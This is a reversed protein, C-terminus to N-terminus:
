NMIIVSTKGPKNPPDELGWLTILFIEAAERAPPASSSLPLPSILTNSHLYILRFLETMKARSELVTSESQQLYKYRNRLQILYKIAM